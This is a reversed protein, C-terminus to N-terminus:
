KKIKNKNVKLIKTPIPKKKKQILHIMKNTKKENNHENLVMIIKDLKKQNKRNDSSVSKGLKKINETNEENKQKIYNIEKRLNNITNNFERKTIYKKDAM